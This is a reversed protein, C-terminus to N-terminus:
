SPEKTDLLAVVLIETSMARLVESMGEPEPNHGEPVNWTAVVRADSEVFILEMGKLRGLVDAVDRAKGPRTELVVNTRLV